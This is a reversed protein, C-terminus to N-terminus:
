FVECKTHSSIKRKELSSHQFSIVKEMDREAVVAENLHNEIELNIIYKEKESHSIKPVNKM